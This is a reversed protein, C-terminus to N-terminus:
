RDIILQHIVTIFIFSQGVILSPVLLYRVIVSYLSQKEFIDLYFIFYQLSFIDKILIYTTRSKFAVFLCVSTIVNLRNILRLCYFNM